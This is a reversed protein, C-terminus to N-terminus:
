ITNSTKLIRNTYFQYIKFDEVERSNLISGEPLHDESDSIKVVTM